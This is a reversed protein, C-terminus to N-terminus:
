PMQWQRVIQDRPFQTMLAISTARLSAVATLAASGASRIGIPRVAVMAEDFRPDSHSARRQGASGGDRQLPHSIAPRRRV